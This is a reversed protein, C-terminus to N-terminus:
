ARSWSKKCSAGAAPQDRVEFYRVASGAQAPRGADPERDAGDTRGRRAARRPKQDRLAHRRGAGPGRLLHGGRRHDLRDHGGGPQDRQGRALRGHRDSGQHRKALRLPRRAPRHDAEGLAVRRALLDNIILNLTPYHGTAYAYWIEYNRPTAPLALARIQSMAADAVAMTREHEDSAAAGARARSASSGGERYM